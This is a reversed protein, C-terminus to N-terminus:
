EKAGEKSKRPPDKGISEGCYLCVEIELYGIGRLNIRTRKHPCALNFRSLDGGREWPNDETDPEAWGNYHPGKHGLLMECRYSEPDDLDRAKCRLFAAGCTVCSTQGVCTHGETRDQRHTTQGWEGGM